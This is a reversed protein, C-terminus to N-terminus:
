KWYYTTGRLILSLTIGM